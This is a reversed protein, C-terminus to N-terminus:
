EPSHVAVKAARILREGLLYGTEIVDAVTNVTVDASPIQVLAEHLKPDFPEGVEGVKKLGYRDFGGRLKQAVIELPSGETLDGHKEARDLDDIAPLLSRIVEAIVAERNAARDREVRTRFNVLEAEARAARDRYEAVLDREGEALLAALEDDTADTAGAGAPAADPNEGSAAGAQGRPEGTEPDIKRKDNVRDANSEQEDRGDNEPNQEDTM